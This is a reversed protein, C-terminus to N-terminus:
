VPFWSGSGSCGWDAVLKDTWRTCFEGRSSETQICVGLHYQFTSLCNAFSDLVVFEFFEAGFIMLQFFFLLTQNLLGYLAMLVRLSLLMLPISMTM